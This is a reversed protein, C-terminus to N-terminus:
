KYEIPKKLIIYIVLPGGIISTIVNIPINIEIFPLNTFISCAVCVISGMLFVIPYLKLHNSSSILSRCFHPVALGVFAIPGCYATVVSALLASSLILLYKTRKVNVGQQQAFEDNIQLLNSEKLTFLGIILGIVIVIFLIIIQEYGLNQFSGFSWFVFSQLSNKDAISELLTVIASAVGSLLLGVILVTSISAVKRSIYLILLSFLFSGMFAYLVISSYKFISNDFFTFGIFAGSMLFLAVFLSAGSSIGLVFPGAIPNRFLTQMQLGSVALAGGALLATLATPIRSNVVVDKFLSNEAEHHTLYNWWDQISFYVQGISLHLIFLALLLAM